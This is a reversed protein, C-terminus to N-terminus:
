KQSEIDTRLPQGGLDADAIYLRPGAVTELKWLDDFIQIRHNGRDIVLIRDGEVRTISVPHHFEGLPKGALEVGVLQCGYPLSAKFQDFSKYRRYPIHRWVAETDSHQRSHAKGITFIGAAGLQYASRWLTGINETHLPQCIGIEFYNPQDVQMNNHNISQKIETPSFSNNIFLGITATVRIMGSVPKAM